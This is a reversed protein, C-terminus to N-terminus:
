RLAATVPVSGITIRAILEFLKFVVNCSIATATAATAGHPLVNFDDVEVHVTGNLVGAAIPFQVSSGNHLPLSQSFGPANIQASFAQQPDHVTTDRVVQVHIAGAVAHDSVVKLSVDAGECLPKSNAQRNQQALMM